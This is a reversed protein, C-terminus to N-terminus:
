FPIDDNPDVPVGDFDDNPIGSPPAVPREFKKTDPVKFNGDCIDDYSKPFKIHIAEAIDGDRRQYEEYAFVFGCFLGCLSAPEFDAINIKRKPNSREICTILGKFFSAVRGSKDFVLQRYIGSNDWKKDPNFKRAADTANKFFNQFEGEAIDVSLVLMLNGAKSNSLEANIIRCVYGGAPLKTFEGPNSAQVDNYGRDNLNIGM